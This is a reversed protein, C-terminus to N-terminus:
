RHNMMTIVSAAATNMIIDYYNKVNTYLVINYLVRCTESDM